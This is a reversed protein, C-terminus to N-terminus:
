RTDGRQNSAKRRKADRSQGRLCERCVRQGRSNRAGHDAYDHGARCHTREKATREQRVAAALVELPAGEPEEDPASSLAGAQRMATVAELCAATTHALTGTGPPQQALCEALRARIRALSAAEQEPTPGPFAAPIRSALPDRTM